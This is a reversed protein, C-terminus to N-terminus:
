TPMRDEFRVFLEPKAWMVHEKSQEEWKLTGDVLAMDYRWHMKALILNM